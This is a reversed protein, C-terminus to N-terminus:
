PTTSFQYIIRNLYTAGPLLEAAPFNKHNPADPFLQPEFVLADGERYLWGDKGTITGDLFNGSYFQIL